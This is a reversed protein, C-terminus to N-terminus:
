NLIKKMKEKIEKKDKSNYINMLEKKNSFISMLKGLTKVQFSPDKIALMFILEAKVDKVGLGMEKFVVPKKLKAILISTKNVHKMDTHPIAVPIGNANLGTPYTKEREVLARPYSEKVYGKELLKNGLNLLLNDRSSEDVDLFILDECVVEKNTTM